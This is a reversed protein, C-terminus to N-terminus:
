PIQGYEGNDLKIYEVRDNVNTKQSNDYSLNANLRLNHKKTILDGIDFALDVWCEIGVQLIFITLYIKYQKM